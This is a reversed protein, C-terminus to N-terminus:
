LMGYLSKSINFQRSWDWEDMVVQNFEQDTLEIIDSVEMEAMKISRDYSTEHSMPKIITRIPDLNIDHFDMAQAMIMNCEHTVENTYACMLDKYDKKHKKLNDKLITLLEEKKVNVKKM